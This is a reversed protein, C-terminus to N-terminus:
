SMMGELKLHQQKGPVPFQGGKPYDTLSGNKEIDEYIWKCLFCGVGDQDPIRAKLLPKLREIQETTLPQVVPKKEIAGEEQKM